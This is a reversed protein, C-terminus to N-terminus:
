QLLRQMFLDLFRTKNLALCVEANAAGATERTYGDDSVVIRLPTTPCVKPDIAFAVPVADFLTPTSSSWPQYSDAWQHYLLTLADTLASGHGFLASREIEDLKIQTSDLPMMVIPVGSSFLKQAAPIDAVINYEKDAPRAAAYESKRYGARVSGGMLLVRKLKRFTAPDREIAAGLNTLPGLAILTIQGPHQRIQQLMFDVSAMPKPDPMSGRQAWRAQTFPTMSTTAIGQALPIESHGTEHLLRQLMQVRLGTDGWAASIGLIDFERSQLLLGLAFADDIDDGIDTDVIVKEREAAYAPHAASLALLCGLLASALAKGTWGLGRIRHMAMM